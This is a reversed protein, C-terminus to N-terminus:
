SSKRVLRREGEAGEATELEVADISGAPWGPDSDWYRTVVGPRMSGGIDFFLVPELGINSYIYPTRKPNFFIDHKKWRWLRNALNWEVDGELHFFSMDRGSAHWPTSQGPLISVMHGRLQHTLVHPGSGRHYGWDSAMPLHWTFSSRYDEWEMHEVPVDATAFGEYPLAVVGFMLTMDLGINKYTFKTGGAITLVDRPRLTYRKGKVTFEVDGRAGVFSADAEHMLEPSGQGIPLLITFAKIGEMEVVPSMGRRLGWKDSEPLNWDIRSRYEDWKLHVPEVQQETTSM